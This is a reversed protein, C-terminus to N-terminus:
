VTKQKRKLLRIDDMKVSKARNYKSFIVKGFKSMQCFFWNRARIKILNSAVEPKVPLLPWLPWVNHWIFLGKWVRVNPLLIVTRAKVTKLHPAVEQKVPFLPWLPWVIHWSSLGEWVNVNPFLILNRDWVSSKKNIKLSKLIEIQYQMYNSVRHRWWSTM